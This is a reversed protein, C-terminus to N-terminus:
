TASRTPRDRNKERGTARGLSEDRERAQQRAYARTFTAAPEAFPLEIQVARPAQHEKALRAALALCAMEDRRSLAEEGALVAGLYAESVRLYQALVAATLGQKSLFQSLRFPKM